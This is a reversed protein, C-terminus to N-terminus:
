DKSFLTKITDYHNEYIGLMENKISVSDPYRGVKAVKIIEVLCGSILDLTKRQGLLDVDVTMGKVSDSGGYFKRLFSKISSYLYFTEKDKLNARFELDLFTAGTRGFLNLIHWDDEYDKLNTPRAVKLNVKRLRVDGDMLQEWVDKQLVPNFEVAKYENVFIYNLLEGLQSASGCNKNRQFLLIEFEPYFQFFSKEFIGEDDGLEIDWEDGGACGATPIDTLRIKVFIGTFTGDNLQKLHRIERHFVDDHNRSMKRESEVLLQKFLKSVTPKSVVNNFFHLQKSSEGTVVEGLHFEVAISKTEVKSM